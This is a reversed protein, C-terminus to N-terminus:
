KLSSKPTHAESFLKQFRMVVEPYKSAVNHQEYLDGVTFLMIPEKAIHVAKWKHTLLARRGGKFNFEWYLYDHQQQNGSGILTSLFSIGDIGKPAKAGTLECLTPMVDWFASLHASESGAEIIGPWHAIMPVRVGGEFLDRKYGRLGGSSNFWVAQNGGEAHPGNDSSFIVLTNDALGLLDLKKMIEGVEWDLRSVMGAFTAKPEQVPGYEGGRGGGGGKFPPAEEVKDRYKEVWEEPAVLDAHPILAAYHLFFPQDGESREDLYNM